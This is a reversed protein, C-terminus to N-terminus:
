FDESFNRLDHQYSHTNFAPWEFENGVERHKPERPLVPQQYRIPIRNCSLIVVNTRTYFFFTSIENLTQILLPM